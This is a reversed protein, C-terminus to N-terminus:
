IRHRRMYLHWFGFSFLLGSLISLVILAALVGRTLLGRAWLECGMISGIGVAFIAAVLILSQRKSLVYSHSDSSPVDAGSM